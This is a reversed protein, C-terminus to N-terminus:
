PIQKGLKQYSRIIPNKNSSTVNKHNNKGYDNKFEISNYIVGVERIWWATHVMHLDIFVRILGFWDLLILVILSHTSSIGNIM